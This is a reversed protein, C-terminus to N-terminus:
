GGFRRTLEITIRPTLEVEIGIMKLFEELKEEMNDWAEDTDFKIEELKEDFLGKRSDLLGLRIGMERHRNM